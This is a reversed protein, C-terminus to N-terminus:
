TEWDLLKKEGSIKQIESIEQSVELIGKYRGDDARIAYYQILVFKAGMRIWFSAVDKEGNRFSQVIQNVVEVSEHPHCNQVKRGIIGTTRPFIRHKPTSFFQVTDHEDVFTVDVPLHNFILEAQELKLTGTKFQIQQGTTQTVKPTSDVKPIDVFHLGIEAAQQLMDDFDDVNFTELMVPFLIREERFIITGINFYVKSSIKNFQEVDFVPSNLLELTKKINQRIDDHISWMLKLCLNNEWKKEIVPFLINEKVVYHSTFKQLTEFRTKLESITNPDFKKNIKKIFTKSENLLQLVGQNDQMLIAVFSNKKPPIFPYEQLSKYLINFLKNSAEKIAEIEFNQEFLRDFLALLDAPTFRTDLIQYKKVLESGNEHNMLGITYNTLQEVRIKSKNTFESM